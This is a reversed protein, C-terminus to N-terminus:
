LKSAHMDTKEIIELVLKLFDKTRGKGGVDPTLKAKDGKDYAVHVSQEILQGVKTWARNAYRNGLWDALMAASLILATPNAIGQGVIDPAAGHSAQAMAVQNNHNISPALGLSGILEGTMDSLIDGFMNETVIVDFKHPNRIIHATVADIHYDDVNIEPFESSMDRTINLLM